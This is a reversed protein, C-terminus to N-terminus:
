EFTIPAGCPFGGRLDYGICARGPAVPEVIPTPVSAISCVHQGEFTYCLSVSAAAQGRVEYDVFFMMCSGFGGCQEREITPPSVLVVDAGACLTVDSVPGVQEVLVHCQTPGAIAPPTASGVPLVTVAAVLALKSKWTM